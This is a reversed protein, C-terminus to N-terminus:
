QRVKTGKAPLCIYYKGTHHSRTLDSLSKQVKKARLLM